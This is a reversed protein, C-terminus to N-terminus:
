INTVVKVLLTPSLGWGWVWMFICMPWIWFPDSTVHKSNSCWTFLLSGMLLYLIIIIKFKCNDGYYGLHLSPVFQVCLPVLWPHQFIRCEELYSYPHRCAQDGGSSKRVRERFLVVFHYHYMKPNSTNSRAHPAQLHQVEKIPTSPTRLRHLSTAHSLLGYLTPRVLRWRSILQVRLYVVM